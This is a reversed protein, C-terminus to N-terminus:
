QQLRHWALDPLARAFDLASDLGARGFARRAGKIISPTPSQFNDTVDRPEMEAGSGNAALLEEIAAELEDPHLWDARYAVIGDTGVLHVSNPLTDFAQHVSGDLDDLLVARTSVDPAVERALSRKEDMSDHPGCRHGPHAERVYILSFAVSDAYSAALRNMSEINSHFIPCTVSGFELVAPTDAWLDELAVVDGDLTELTGSPAHEGARINPKRNGDFYHGVRFHPYNYTRSETM